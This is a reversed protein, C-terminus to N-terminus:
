KCIRIACYRNPRVERSASIKRIRIYTHRHFITSSNRYKPCDFLLLRGDATQAFLRMEFKLHALHQWCIFLWIYIEFCFITQVVVARSQYPKQRFYQMETIIITLWITSIHRRQPFLLQLWTTFPDMNDCRWWNFRLKSVTISCMELEIIQAASFARWVM